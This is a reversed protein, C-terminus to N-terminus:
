KKLYDDQGKLLQEVMHLIFEIEKDNRKNVLFRFREIYQESKEGNIFANPTTKLAKVIRLYTDLRMTRRGSEIGKITDISVDAWEALMAQSIGAKKREERINEAVIKYISEESNM